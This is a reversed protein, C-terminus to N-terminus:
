SANTKASDKVIGNTKIVEGNARPALEMPSAAVPEPQAEEVHDPATITNTNGYTVKGDFIVTPRVKPLM